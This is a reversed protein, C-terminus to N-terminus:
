YEKKITLFLAFLSSAKIEKEKNDEDIFTAGNESKHKILVERRKLPYIPPFHYTEGEKIDEWPIHRKCLKLSAIEEKILNKKGM